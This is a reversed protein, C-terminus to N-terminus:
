TSAAEDLWINLPIPEGMIESVAKGVETDLKEDVPLHCQSACIQKALDYYNRMAKEKDIYDDYKKLM